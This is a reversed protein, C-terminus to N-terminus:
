PPQPGAVQQASPESALRGGDWKAHRMLCARVGIALAGDGGIDLRLRLRLGLKLKLKLELELRHVQGELASVGSAM